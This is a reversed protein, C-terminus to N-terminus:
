WLVDLKSGCREGPRNINKVICNKTEIKKRNLSSKFNLIEYCIHMQM